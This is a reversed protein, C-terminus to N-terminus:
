DDVFVGGVPFKKFAKRAIKMADHDLDEEDDDVKKTVEARYVLDGTAREIADFTTTGEYYTYTYAYGGWYPAGWYGGYGYGWPGYWGYPYYPGSNVLETREDERSKVRITLDGGSDVQTLGHMRLAYSAANRLRNEAITNHEDVEGDRVPPSVEITFTKYQSFNKSRNFDIRTEATVVAPFVFLCLFIFIRWLM